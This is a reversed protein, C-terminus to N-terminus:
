QSPVLGSLAEAYNVITFVVSDGDRDVAFRLPVGADDFWGELPFPIGRPDDLADIRYYRADLVRGDIEIEQRGGDTVDVPVVGGSKTGMVTEALRMDISWLNTPYVNAPAVAEGRPGQILFGDGEARGTLRILDGDVDTSSEYATLRGNEWTELRDAEERYLVISGFLAKVAIRLKAEVLTGEGDRRITNSFSGIDGWTEHEIGYSLVQVSEATAPSAAFSPLILSIVLACACLRM